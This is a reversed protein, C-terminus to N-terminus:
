SLLRHHGYSDADCWRDEGPRHIYCGVGGSELVAELHIAPQGLLRLGGESLEALIRTSGTYREAVKQKGFRRPPRKRDRVKTLAEGTSVYRAGVEDCDDVLRFPALGPVPLIRDAQSHFRDGEHTRSAVLLRHLRAGPNAGRESEFYVVTM